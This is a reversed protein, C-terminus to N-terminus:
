VANAANASLLTLEKCSVTQSRREKAPRPVTPPQIAPHTNMWELVVESAEDSRCIDKCAANSWIWPRRRDATEDEAILIGPAHHYRNQRDATNCRYKTIGDAVVALPGTKARQGAM